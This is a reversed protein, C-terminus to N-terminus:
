RGTHSTVPSQYKSAEDKQDEDRAPALQLLGLLGLLCRLLLESLLEALSDRSDRSDRQQSEQEKTTYKHPQQENNNIPRSSQTAWEVNLKRM